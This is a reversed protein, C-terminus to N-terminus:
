LPSLSHSSLYIIPPPLTLMTTPTTTPIRPASPITTLQIPPTLAPLDSNVPFPLSFPFLYPSISTSPFALNVVLSPHLSPLPHHFVLSSCLRFLKQLLIESYQCLSKEAMLLSDHVCPLLHPKNCTIFSHIHNFKFLTFPCWDLQVTM